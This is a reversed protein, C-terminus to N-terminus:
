KETRGHFFHLVVNVYDSTYKKKESFKSRDGKLGNISRSIKLLVMASESRLVRRSANLEIFPQQPKDLM